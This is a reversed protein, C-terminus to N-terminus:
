GVDVENLLVVVSDFDVWSGIRSCRVLRIVFYGCFTLYAGCSRGSRNGVENFHEVPSQQQVNVVPYLVNSCVPFLFATM